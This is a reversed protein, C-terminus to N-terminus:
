EDNEMHYKIQLQAEVIVLSASEKTLGMRHAVTEIPLEGGGNLGYRLELALRELPLLKALQDQIVTSPEPCPLADMNINAGEQPLPIQRRDNRWHAVRRRVCDALYTSFQYGKAADFYKIAELGALNGEQVMDDLEYGDMMLGNCLRIILGRNAALIRDAAERGEKSKPNAKAVALDNLCASPSM